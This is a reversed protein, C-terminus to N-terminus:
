TNHHYRDIDQIVKNDKLFSTVGVLDTHVKEFVPSRFTRSFNNRTFTLSIEGLSKLRTKSDELKALQSNPRM